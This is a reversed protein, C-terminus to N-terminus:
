FCTSMGKFKGIFGHNDGQVYKQSSTIWLALGDGFWSKAQGSIRFTFVLSFERAGLQERGWIYGRKSQRDPTLRVFHRNVAAAGGTEYNAGVLRAGEADIEDFPKEFSVRELLKANAVALLLAVLWLVRLGPMTPAPLRAPPCSYICVPLPVAVSATRQTVHLRVAHWTACSRKM